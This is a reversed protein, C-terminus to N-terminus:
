PADGSSNPQMHVAAAEAALSERWDGCLAQAISLAALAATEARLIRPGLTAPRVFPQARLWAREAPAFGGEPGTLVVLRAGALGQLAQAIPAARGQDGGWLVGPDDGAEDAFLVLVGERGLEAVAQELRLPELLRPLELRECQEAASQAILALRELRVREAVTRQTM